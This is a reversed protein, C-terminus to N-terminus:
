AFAFNLNLQELGDRRRPKKCEVVIYVTEPHGDDVVVIDARKEGVSSGFFVGKEAFIRNKPYGYDYILRKIYLQRVIEEPKAPRDKDDALCKLYPKKGKEFIELANIEEDRFLDLGYGSGSFVLIDSVKMRQLSEDAM